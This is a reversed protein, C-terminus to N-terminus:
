DSYRARVAKRMADSSRRERGSRHEKVLGSAVKQFAAFAPHLHAETGDEMRRVMLLGLEIVETKSVGKSRCYRDLWSELDSNLRASAAVAIEMQLVDICYM